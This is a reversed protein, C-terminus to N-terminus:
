FYYGVNINIRHSWSKDDILGVGPGNVFSSNVGSILEIYTTIADTNLTCGLLNQITKNGVDSSRHKPKVVGFNNYCSMKDIFDFSTEIDRAINFLYFDAESAVYFANEFAGVLVKNTDQGPENKPKYQYSGLEIQVHWNDFSSTLHVAYASHAGTELTQENYLDGHQLSLGLSTSGFNKQVRVNFQNVEHNFENKEADTVVDFSYRAHNASSLEANKYFGLDIEWLQDAYSYKLGLDNDDELGLHYLISEWYGFSSYPLVGFPVKNLGLQLESNDTLDLSMYAYEPVSFESYWRYQAFLKFQGIESTVNLRFLEFDLSGLTVKSQEDYEKYSYNVRVAGGINLNKNSPSEVMSNIKSPKKLDSVQTNANTETTIYGMVAAVVILLVTKM